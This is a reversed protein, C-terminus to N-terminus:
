LAAIESVIKGDIISWGASAVAKEIYEKSKEESLGVNCEVWLQLMKIDVPEPFKSAIEKRIQALREVKIFAGDKRM